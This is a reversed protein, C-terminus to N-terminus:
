EVFAKGHIAGLCARFRPDNALCGHILYPSLWGLVRITDASLHYKHLSRRQEDSRVGVARRVIGKRAGLHRRCTPLM